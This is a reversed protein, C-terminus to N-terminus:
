EEEALLEKIRVDFIALAGKRPSEEEEEKKKLLYIDDVNEIKAVTKSLETLNLELTQNASLEKVPVEKAKFTQVEKAKLTKAHTKAHREDHFLYGDSTASVQAAGTQELHKKAKDEIKSM